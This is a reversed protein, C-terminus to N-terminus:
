FDAEIFMLICHCGRNNIRGPTFQKNLYSKM